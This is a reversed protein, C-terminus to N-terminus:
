DTGVTSAQEEGLLRPDRLTLHLIVATALGCLASLMFTSKFGLSDALWGGLIPAIITSPAVLTNSLGIYAPREAESGFQLTLTMAITWIAVNAIGALIFVIYFWSLSSAMTALLTSLVACLAGIKFVARHNWRDGIWGMLPNTIIQGLTYVGMMLGATSESMNLTRVAYVTYFSFAMVGFQALMRVILFWRFNVDKRLITVLSNWWQCTHMDQAAAPADPERTLALFVYSIVMALSALFFLSAFDVPSDLRELMIGALVASGSMLLSASAGQSGFFTGMWEAPVIKGIMSQWATATFGGGMGQWVLMVFTLILAVKSGVVPLLAAVIALGLFPVREHITMLLVMPKYRRLKSVREVTFLQPLQWGVTHIAPILGILVASDTMTSVFLPVITLFSAFGLALGFFAGDMMNVFFNFRYLRYIEIKM